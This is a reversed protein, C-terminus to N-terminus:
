REIAAMLTDTTFAGPANTRLIGKAKMRELYSSFQRSVLEPLAPARSIRKSAARCREQAGTCGYHTSAILVRNRARHCRRSVDATWNAGSSSQAEALASGEALFRRLRGM